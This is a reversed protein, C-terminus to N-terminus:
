VAARIEELATVVAQRLDRPELVEADPGFSLIWSV